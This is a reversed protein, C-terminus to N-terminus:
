ATQGGTCYDRQFKCSNGDVSCGETFIMFANPDISHVIHKIQNVEYKSIMVFLIYSTKHTYAGEGDWNTVGRGTVEQIIPPMTAPQPLPIMKLALLM